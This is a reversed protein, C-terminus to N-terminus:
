IYTIYQNLSIYMVNTAVYLNWLWVCGIVDGLNLRSIHQSDREIRVFRHSSEWWWLLRNHQGLAKSLLLHATTAHAVATLTMLLTAIVTSFSIIHISSLHQSKFNQAFDQKFHLIDLTCIKRPVAANYSKLILYISSVLFLKECCSTDCFAFSWYWFGWLVVNNIRRWHWQPGVKMTGDNCFFLPINCNCSTARYPLSVDKSRKKGHINSLTVRSKKVWLTELFMVDLHKTYINRSTIYYYGRLLNTQMFSDTLKRQFTIDCGHTCPEQFWTGLIWRWHPDNLDDFPSCSVLSPCSLTMLHSIYKSQYWCKHCGLLDM